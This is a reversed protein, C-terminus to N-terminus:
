RLSMARRSASMACVWVPHVVFCKPSDFLGAGIQEVGAFLDGEGGDGGFGAEGSGRKVAVLAEARDDIVM